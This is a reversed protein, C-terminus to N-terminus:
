TVAFVAQVIVLKDDEIVTFEFGLPSEFAVRHVSSDRSEGIILPHMVLAREFEHALRTLHKRDSSAVWIAALMQEADPGWEVRYSM